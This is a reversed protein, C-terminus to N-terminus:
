YRGAHQDFDRWFHTRRNQRAHQARHDQQGSVDGGPRRRFLPAGHELMFQRMKLPPIMVDIAKLRPQARDEKEMREHTVGAALQMEFSLQSAVIVHEAEARGGHSVSFAQEFHGLAIERRNTQM